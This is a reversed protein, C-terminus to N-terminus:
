GPSSSRIFSNLVKGTALSKYAISILLPKSVSGPTFFIFLTCSNMFLILFSFSLGGYGAGATDFLYMDCFDEYPRIKDQLNYEEGLRFAKIVKVHDSIRECFKPTEDGHLQIIDIGCDFVTKLIEDQSANVFVGVKKINGNLSKIEDCGMKAYVYRASKEYFILGVYDIGLAELQLVQEVSTIGCVKFKM